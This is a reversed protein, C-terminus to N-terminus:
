DDDIEESRLCVSARALWGKKPGDPHPRTVAGFLTCSGRDAGLHARLYPCHKFDDAICTTEGAVIKHRLFRDSVVPVQDAMENVKAWFQRSGETNTKRKLGSM